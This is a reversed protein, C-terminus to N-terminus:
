KKTHSSYKINYKQRGFDVTVETGNSFVTKEIMYEDDLYEHSIMECFAVNEQLKSVEDIKAIDEDSANIDLYAPGGNLLAYLFRNNEWENSYYEYITWPVIFCDHYVLNFLPVNVGAYKEKDVSWFPEHHCLVMNPVFNDVAAESSIIIGRSALLNMCKKRYEVCERRTMRHEPHTCEDLHICSFVDLYVGDPEIGMEKLKDYNREVYYEALTQCLVTQPGGNWTCEYPNKGDADLQANNIDFTPADYYYDRYQDHLALLVNNKKCVEHLKKLGEAGGGKECPPLVDPHQQDYGDIGWGDLHFYAKKLGRRHLDEIEKARQEFAAFKYNREPHEKSYIYAEPKIYYYIYSHIIPSGILQEIKPNKVTKQRLTILNGCEDAYKRYQKCIYNYDCDEFFESRLVRRYSIKGFQPAWLPYVETAGDKEPHFLRYDCDWPTEIINLVGEGNHIQSYWPMVAGMECFHKYGAGIITTDWDSPILMGQEMPFLTYANRDKREWKWPYPWRIYEPSCNEAIPILEFYLRGNQLNVWSLTTYAIDANKGDICWGSYKVKMGFAVGTSFYEKEINVAEDFYLFKEKGDPTNPLKIYNRYSKDMVWLRKAQKVAVTNDSLDFTYTNNKIKLEKM